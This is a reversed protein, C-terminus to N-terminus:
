VAFCTLSMLKGAKDASSVILPIFDEIISTSSLASSSSSSSSAGGFAADAMDNTMYEARMFNERYESILERIITLDKYLGAKAYPPV